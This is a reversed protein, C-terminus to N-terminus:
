GDARKESEYQHGCMIPLYNGDAQTCRSWLSIITNNAPRQKRCMNDCVSRIFLESGFLYLCEIM